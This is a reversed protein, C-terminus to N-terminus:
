ITQSNHLFIKCSDSRKSILEGLMYFIAFSQPQHVDKHQPQTMHDEAVKMKGAASDMIMMQYVNQCAQRLFSSALGAQGPSVMCGIM